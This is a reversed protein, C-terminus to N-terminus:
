YYSEPMAWGSLSVLDCRVIIGRLHLCLSCCSRHKFQVTCIEVGSAINWRIDTQKKYIITVNNLIRHSVFQNTKLVQISM